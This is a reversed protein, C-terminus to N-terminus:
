VHVMVLGLNGDEYDNDQFFDNHRWLDAYPPEIEEEKEDDDFM